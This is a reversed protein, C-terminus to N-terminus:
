SGLMLKSRFSQSVKVSELGPEGLLALILELKEFLGKSSSFIERVERVVPNTSSTLFYQLM